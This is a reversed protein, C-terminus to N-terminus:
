KNSMEKSRLTAAEVANILTNRIGGKELEHIAFITTGGSSTVQDKLAGPHIGSELVTKSAGFLTQAAFKTAIDRPLGQKVGADSLADIMIYVYAPGSGSVATVADFKSEDVVEAIGLSSFITEIVKFHLDIDVNFKSNRYTGVGLTPKTLATCGAMVQLPTNPMARVYSNFIPVAKKVANVSTGALISVLTSCFNRECYTEADEDYNKLLSEGVDELCNPKVCLFVIPCSNVIENNDLTKKIGFSEWRTFDTTSRGSILIENATFLKSELIGKCIAFAMNGSGIFGIKALEGYKYKYNKISEM